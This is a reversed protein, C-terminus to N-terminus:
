STAARRLATDIRESDGAPARALAERYAVDAEATRGARRLLDARAAHVLHHEGFAPYAAGLRELGELGREPGAAMGHAAARNLEVVPSPALRALVDYLVAIEGWDTEASTPARAHLCAIAAQLQYPGPRRAELARRLLRDAEAAKASDFLSRDQLELPVARGAADLRAPRRADHALLLAALGLAEPESPLLTALLRALHVAEDCLAARLRSDGSTAAYGESFVLYVVHLVAALRQPLAAPAPVAFPIGSDRIKRQARVLRQALTPEPVLFAHAIEATTLGGVTRLTLAVQAELTLAPHCCAFLLELRADPLQRAENPDVAADAALSALVDPPTLLASSRRLAAVAARRAVTTLWAAPREPIGQRPWQLLAAELAHQVADEALALDRVDRAVSALVTAREARAVAEVTRFVPSGASTM